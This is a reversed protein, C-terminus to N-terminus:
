WDGRRGRVFLQGLKRFVFGWRGARALRACRRRNQIELSPRGDGCRGRLCKTAAASIVREFAGIDPPKSGGQRIAGTFKGDRLRGEFSFGIEHSDVTVLDDEQTVLDVPLNNHKRGVIVFEVTAGDTGRNSFRLSVHRTYGLM